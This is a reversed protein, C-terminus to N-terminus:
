DFVGGCKSHSAAQGSVRSFASKGSATPAGRPASSVFSTGMSGSRCATISRHGSSGSGILASMTAIIRAGAARSSLGTQRTEAPWLAPQDIGDDAAAGTVSRGPRLFLDPFNGSKKEAARHDSRGAWMRPASASQNSVQGTARSSSVAASMRAIIRAAPPGQHWCYPRQNFLPQSRDEHSFRTQRFVDLMNVAAGIMRDIVAQGVADCDPIKPRKFVSKVTKSIGPSPRPSTEGVARPLGCPGTAPSRFCTM